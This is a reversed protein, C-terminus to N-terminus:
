SAARRRGYWGVRDKGPAGSRVFPNEERPPYNLRTRSYCGWFIGRPGPFTRDVASSGLRDGADRGPVTSERRPGIIRVAQYVMRAVIM